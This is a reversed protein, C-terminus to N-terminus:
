KLHLLLIFCEQLTFIGGFHESMCHKLLYVLVNRNWFSRTPVASIGVDLSRLMLDCWYGLQLFLSFLHGFYVKEERWSNLSTLTIFIRVWGFMPSHLEEEEEEWGRGGSGGGTAGKRRTCGKKRRRRRRRREGERGMERGGGEGTAGYNAKVGGRERGGWGAGGWRTGGGGGRATSLISCYKYKVATTKWHLQKLHNLRLFSQVQHHLVGASTLGAWRDTWRDTEGDTGRGTQRGPLM